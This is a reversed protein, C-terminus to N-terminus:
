DMPVITPLRGSEMLMALGAALLIMELVGRATASLPYVLGMRVSIGLWLSMLGAVLSWAAAGSFDAVRGGRGPIFLHGRVAGILCYLLPIGLFAAVM